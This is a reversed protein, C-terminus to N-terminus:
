RTSFRRPNLIKLEEYSQSVGFLSDYDTSHRVIINWEVFGKAARAQAHGRGAESHERGNDALSLM